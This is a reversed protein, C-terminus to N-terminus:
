PPNTIDVIKIGKPNLKGGKLASVPAALAKNGRMRLSKLSFDEIGRRKRRPNKIEVAGVRSPFVATHEEEKAFCPTGCVTGGHPLSFYAPLKAGAVAPTDRGLLAIARLYPPEKEDRKDNEYIEAPIYKLKKEAAKEFLAPTIKGEDRLKGFFAAACLSDRSYPRMRGEPDLVILL